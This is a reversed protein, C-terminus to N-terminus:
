ITAPSPRGAEESSNNTRRRRVEGLELDGPEAEPKAKDKDKGKGKQALGCSRSTTSSRARRAVVSASSGVASGATPRLSGNRYIICTTRKALAAVAIATMACGIGEWIKLHTLPSVTTVSSM